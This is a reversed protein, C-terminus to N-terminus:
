QSAPYISLVGDVCLVVFDVPSAAGNANDAVSPLVHCFLSPVFDLCVWSGSLLIYSFIDLIRTLSRSM